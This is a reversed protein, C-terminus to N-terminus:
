RFDRFDLIYRFATLLRAEVLRGSLRRQAAHAGAQRDVRRDPV